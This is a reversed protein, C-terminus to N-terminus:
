IDKMTLQFCMYALYVKMNVPTQKMSEIAKQYAYERFSAPPLPLLNNLGQNPIQHKYSSDFIKCDNEIQKVFYDWINTTNSVHEFYQPQDDSSM